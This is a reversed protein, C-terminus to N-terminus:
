TTMQNKEYDEYKKENSKMKGVNKFKRRLLITAIIIVTVVVIIGGIIIFILLINSMGNNTEEVEDDITLDEINTTNAQLVIEKQVFVNAAEPISSELSRQELIRRTDLKVICSFSLIYRGPSVGELNVSITYSNKGDERSVLLLPVEIEDSSSNKLKGVPPVTMTYLGTIEPALKIELTFSNNVQFTQQDDSDTSNITAAFSTTIEKDEGQQNLEIVKISGDEYLSNGISFDITPDFSVKLTNYFLQQSQPYLHIIQGQFTSLDNSTTEIFGCSQLDKLSLVITVKNNGIVFDIPSENNASSCVYTDIENFNPNYEGAIVYVVDEKYELFQIQIQDSDAIFEATFDIAQNLNTQVPLFEWLQNEEFLCSILQFTNDICQSQSQPQLQAINGYLFSYEKYDQMKNLIFTSDTDYSFKIEQNYQNIFEYNSDIIKAKWIYQEIAIENSYNDYFVYYLLQRPMRFYQNIWQNGNCKLKSQFLM